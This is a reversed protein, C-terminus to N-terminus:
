SPTSEMIIKKPLPEIRSSVLKDTIYKRAEERAETASYCGEIVHSGDVLACWGVDSAFYTEIKSM